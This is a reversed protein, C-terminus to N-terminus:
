TRTCVHSGRLYAWGLSEEMEIECPGPMLKPCLLTRQPQTQGPAFRGSGMIRVYDAVQPPRCEQLERGLAGHVVGRMGAGGGSVTASLHTEQDLHLYRLPM